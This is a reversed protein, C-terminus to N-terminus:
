RIRRAKRLDDMSIDDLSVMNEMRDLLRIKEWEMKSVEMRKGDVEIVYKKIKGLKKVM